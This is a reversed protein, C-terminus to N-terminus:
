EDITEQILKFLEQVKEEGKKKVKADGDDVVFFQIKYQQGDKKSTLTKEQTEPPFPNDGHKQSM